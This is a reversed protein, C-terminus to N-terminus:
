EEGRGQEALVATRLRVLEAPDDFTYTWPFDTARDGLAAFHVAALDHRDALWFAMAFASHAQVGLPGGVDDAHLVSRAAADRLEDVVASQAMYAAGPQGADLDLWREIHVIPVLAGSHSGPPAAAAEDRAFAHAEEESGAWKPLLYQLMHAQAPFDHPSLRRVREYRRRSEAAGVELARATLVRTGWAPVYSADVACADILLQEARVLWSRFAEFQEASVDEARAHTRIEWGLFICRRALATRASASEPNAAVADELVREVGDMEAAMELAYAAEDPPLAALASDAAPWDGARLADRLGAFEPVNDISDFVASARDDSAAM